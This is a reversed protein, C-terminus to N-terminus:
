GVHNKKLEQKEEDSLQYEIACCQTGHNFADLIDLKTITLLHLEGDSERITINLARTSKSARAFGRVKYPHYKYTQGEGANDDQAIVPAADTTAQKGGMM